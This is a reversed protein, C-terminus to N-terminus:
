KKFICNKMIKNLEDELLIIDEGKMYKKLQITNLVKYEKFYDHYVQNLDDLNKPMKVSYDDLNRKSRDSFSHDLTHLLAFTGQLIRKNVNDTFYFLLFTASSLENNGILTIDLLSNEIMDKILLYESFSGGPSNLYINVSPYVGENEMMVCNNLFDLLELSSTFDFEKNFYYNLIM